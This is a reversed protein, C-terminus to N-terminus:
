VELPLQAHLMITGVALAWSIMSLIENARTWLVASGQDEAHM